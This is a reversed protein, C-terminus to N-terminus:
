LQKTFKCKPYNSCGYFQGYKGKRLVLNGGCRPCIGSAIAAQKKYINTLHEEQSVAHGDRYECLNRYIKDQQEPTLVPPEERVSLLYQRLGGPSYVYASHINGINGQVFVVLGHVPVQKGLITRVLYVHTANQKVPSYFTNKVNGGALFQVWERQSDSGYVMGSYNKTEVIFVGHSCILIHDIQSSNDNQPNYLITDNLVRDHESVCCLQLINAVRNEGRKGRAQPNDYRIKYVAVLGLLLVFIIVSIVILITM